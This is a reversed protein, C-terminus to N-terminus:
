ELICSWSPFKVSKHMLQHHIYSALSFQALLPLPTFPPCCHKVPTCTELVSRLNGHLATFSYAGCQVKSLFMEQFLQQSDLSHTNLHLWFSWLSFILWNITGKRKETVERHVVEWYATKTKYKSARDCNKWAVVHRQLKLPQKFCSGVRPGTAATNEPLLLICSFVAEKLAQTPLRILGHAFYM